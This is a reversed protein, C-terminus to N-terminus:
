TERSKKIERASEIKKARNLIFIDNRQIVNLDRWRKQSGNKSSNRSERMNSHSDVVEEGCSIMESNKTISM